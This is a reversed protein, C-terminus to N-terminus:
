TAMSSLLENKFRKYLRMVGTSTFTKNNVTKFDLKTLLQVIKEYSLGKERYQVILATAQQNAKSVRAKLRMAEAGKLRHAYSLNEPTGLVYGQRKKEALAACTRQSIRKAEDEAIAMMLVITLNNAAPMDCCIFEVGAEMLLSVFLVNRALRDLKAIVLVANNQRAHEIAKYIEIRKKKSTGTEIETFSEILVGDNSRLFNSVMTKQSDLGLGSKEQQSTSVRFYAVYKKM